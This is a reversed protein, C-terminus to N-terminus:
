YLYLLKLVVLIKMVFIVYSMVYSLLRNLQNKLIFIGDIKRLGLLM